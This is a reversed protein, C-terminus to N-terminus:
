NVELSIRKGAVNSLLNELEKLKQGKDTQKRKRREEVRKKEAKIEEMERKLKSMESELKSKRKPIEQSAIKEEQNRLEESLKSYEELIKGITNDEIMRGIIVLFKDSDKLDMKGEIINIKMDKIASMFVEGKPDESLISEFSHQAYDDLIKNEASWKYKKLPNEVKAISQIFDSKKNQLSIKLEEKIKQMGLFAKWENSDPLKKLENEIKKNKDEIEKLIKELENMENKNKLEETLKLVETAVKQAKLLQVNSERFEKVINGLKKDIEIIQRFSQIVKEAEKEFLEKLFAYERVTKANTINILKATENHFNLISTMDEGIPKQIQKVLTKMKNVFSKRSGVAKRILIPYTRGSYPAQELIKLQDQMTSAVLQLNAHEKKAEKKVSEKLPEFDKKLKNALFDEVEKMSMKTEDFKEEEKRFIRDLWGL